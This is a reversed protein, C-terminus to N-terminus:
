TPQSGNDEGTLRARMNELTLSKDNRLADILSQITLKKITYNTVLMIAVALIFSALSFETFISVVFSITFNIMLPLLIQSDLYSFCFKYWKRNLWDKMAGGSFLWDDEYAELFM